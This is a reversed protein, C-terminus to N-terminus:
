HQVDMKCRFQLQRLLRQKHLTWTPFLFTAPQRYNETAKLRDDLAACTTITPDKWHTKGLLDGISGVLPDTRLETGRNSHSDAVTDTVGKVRPPSDARENSIANPTVAAEIGSVNNSGGSSDIAVASPSFLIAAHALDDYLGKRQCSDIWYQGIDKGSHQRKFAKFDIRVQEPM